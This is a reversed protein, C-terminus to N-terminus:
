GMVLISGLNRPWWARLGNSFRSFWQPGEHSLLALFLQNVHSAYCPVSCLAYHPAEYNSHEKGFLILTTPWPIHLVRTTPLKFYKVTVRFLGSSLGTQPQYYCSIMLFNISFRFILMAITSWQSLRCVPQPRPSYASSCVPIERGASRGDAEWSSAM